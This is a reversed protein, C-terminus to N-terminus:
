RYCGQLAVMVSIGRRSVPELLPAQLRKIGCLGAAEEGAM